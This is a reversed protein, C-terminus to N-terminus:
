SFKLKVTSGAPLGSFYIRQGPTVGKLLLLGDPSNIETEELLETGGSTTGIKLTFSSSAEVSIWELMLHRIKTDLYFDSTNQVVVLRLADIVLMIDNPILNMFAPLGDIADRPILDNKHWYSDMWDKIQQVTPKWGRVVWSILNNRSQIM